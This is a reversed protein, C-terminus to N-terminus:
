YEESETGQGESASDPDEGELMRLGEHMRELKERVEYRIEDEEIM